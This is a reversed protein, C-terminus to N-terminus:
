GLLEAYSPPPGDFEAVTGVEMATSASDQRLMAADVSGISASLPPLEVVLEEQEAAEADRRLRACADILERCRATLVIPTPVEAEIDMEAIADHAMLCALSGYGLASLAVEAVDDPEDALAALRDVLHDTLTPPVAIPADRAGALSACADIVARGRRTLVIPALGYDDEDGDGHIPEIIGEGALLDLTQTRCASLAVDAVDDPEGALDALRRRVDAPLTAPISGNQAM